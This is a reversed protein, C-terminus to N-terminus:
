HLHSHADPQWPQVAVRPLAPLEVTFTTGEGPRSVAQIEGGHAEVIERTLYLGLGLGGYERASVAQAFPEFVRVLARADMGIGHDRVTLRGRDEVRSVEVEVLSGAGFKAANALLNTLVQQLRMRDWAGRVGEELRLSVRCDAQRLTADFEEVVDRVLVDLFVEELELHLKSANVRGVDLLSDVLRALRTAQRDMAQLKPLAPAADPGPRLLRTASQLQLKLGTIPTRLEHAAITIFEDRTHVAKQTRALQRHNDVAFACRQALEEAFRLEREGLPRHVDESVLAVAGLREDRLLMPVLVARGAPDVWRSTSAGLRATLAAVLPPSAGEQAVRQLRGDEQAVWAAFGSGLEPVVESAIRGLPRAADRSEVLLAGARALLRQARAAWRREAVMAALLCASLGMVALYAQVALLRQEPDSPFLAAFPGRGAHSFGIALGAMMAVAAAAGSPGLRLAAFALLPFPLYTLTALYGWTPPSAFLAAGVAAIAGLLLASAGRTGRRALERPLPWWTLLLPTFLLTGLSDAMWWVSVEVPFPAADELWLVAAASGVVASVCPAVLGGFLIFGTVERVRRLHPPGGAWARVLWAALATRLCNAVAWGLALPLPGATVLAKAAEAVFLSALYIAWHRSPVRVLVALALGTTLAVVASSSTAFNTHEIAVGLPFFALGFLAAGGAARLRAKRPSRDDQTMPPAGEGALYSRPTSVTNALVHRLLGAREAAAGVLRAVDHAIAAPPLHVAVRRRTRTRAADCGGLRGVPRGHRWQVWVPRAALSARGM